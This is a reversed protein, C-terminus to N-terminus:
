NIKVSITEISKKFFNEILEAKILNVKGNRIYTIGRFRGGTDTVGFGYLNNNLITDLVITKDTVYSIIGRQSVLTPKSLDFFRGILLIDQGNQYNPYTNLDAINSNSTSTKILMLNLKFDSTVMSGKLIEGEYFIQYIGNPM